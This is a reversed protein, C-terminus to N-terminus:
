AYLIWANQEDPLEETTKNQLKKNSYRNSLLSRQGNPSTPCFYMSSSNYKSKKYVATGIKYKGIPTIKQRLQQKSVSLRQSLMTRIIIIGTTLQITSSIGNTDNKLKRTIALLGNNQDQVAKPSAPASM